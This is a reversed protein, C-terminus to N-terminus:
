ALDMFGPISRVHLPFQELYELIERRRTRSVSPMALLIEQAGTEEILQTIRSPKYVKVGAIIRNVIGPDDDIFAVPHMARGMRLASLLQNGAAGAGYIAVKPLGDDRGGFPLN